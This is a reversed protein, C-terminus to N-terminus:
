KLLELIGEINEETIKKKTANQKLGFKDKIESFDIELDDALQKFTKGVYNFTKATKIIKEENDYEQKINCVIIGTRILTMLTKDEFEKYNIEENALRKEGNLICDHAVKLDYMQLPIMSIAGSDLLMRDNSTFKYEYLKNAKHFGYNVFDRNTYAQLKIIDTNFM